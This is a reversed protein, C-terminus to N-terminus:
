ENMVEAFEYLDTPDTTYDSVVRYITEGRRFGFVQRDTNAAVEYTDEPGWVKTTVITKEVRWRM